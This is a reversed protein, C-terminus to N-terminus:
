SIQVGCTPLVRYLVKYRHWAAARMFKVWDSQYFNEKRVYEYFNYTRYELRKFFGKRPIVEVADRFWTRPHYGLTQDIQDFDKWGFLNNHIAHLWAQHRNERTGGTTLLKLFREDDRSFIRPQGSGLYQPNCRLYSCLFEGMAELAPLFRESLNDVEVLVGDRTLYSWVADPIDPNLLAQVHGIPAASTLIDRIFDRLKGAIQKQVPATLLYIDNVSDYYGKFNAHTFADAFCHMMIGLLYLALPSDGAQLLDTLLCQLVDSDPSTILGDPNNWRKGQPLFHFPIWVEMASNVDLHLHSLGRHATRIQYFISGDRFRLAHGYSADDVQQAAYAVIQAYCSQMGANRCLVYTGTHHLDIQM